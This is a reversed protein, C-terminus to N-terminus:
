QSNNGKNQIPILLAKRLPAKGGFKGSYLSSAEAYEDEVSVKTVHFFEDHYYHITGIYIAGDDPRLDVKYGGPFCLMDKKMTTDISVVVAGGLIYFPKPDSMAFFTKGLPAPVHGKFDDDKYPTELEQWEDGTILFFRNQYVDTGMMNLDQDTPKLPPTLVVKGVIVAQGPSAEDMNAILHKGSALPICSVISMVALALGCSKFLSKM